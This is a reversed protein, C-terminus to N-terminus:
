APIAEPKYLACTFCQERLKFGEVQLALWCPLDPHRSAACQARHAAGCHHLDWCHRGIMRSPEATRLLRDPVPEEQPRLKKELWYGFALTISIPVGVRLAFMLLVVLAQLVESM